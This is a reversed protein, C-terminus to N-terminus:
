RQRAVDLRGDAANAGERRQRADAGDGLRGGAIVVHPLDRHRPQERVVDLRDLHVPREVTRLQRLDRQGHPGVVHVAHRREFAVEAAASARM